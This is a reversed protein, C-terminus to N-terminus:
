GKPKAYSLLGLLDTNKSDTLSVLWDEQFSWSSMGPFLVRYWPFSYYHNPSVRRVIGIKGLAGLMEPNFYCGQSGVWGDGKIIQVRDKIVSSLVVQDGVKFNM